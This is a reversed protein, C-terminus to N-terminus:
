FNVKMTFILISYPGTCLPETLRRQDIGITAFIYVDWHIFISLTVDFEHSITCFQELTSWYDKLTDREDHLNTHNYGCVYKAM